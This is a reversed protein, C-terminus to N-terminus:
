EKLNTAEGDNISFGTVIDMSLLTPILALQEPPLSKLPSALKLQTILKSLPADIETLTLPQTTSGQLLITQSHELNLQEYHNNEVAQKLDILAYQSSIIQSSPNLHLQIDGHQEQPVNALRIIPQSKEPSVPVEFRSAQDIKWEFNMVDLLYPVASTIHELQAVSQEFGAGYDLTNGSEPPHQTIHFKAIAGFCEEGVLAFTIPYAAQLVESLSIIFNNRYIQIREQASFHDSIIGVRQTSAPNLLAHSFQQQIDALTMM